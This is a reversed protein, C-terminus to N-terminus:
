SNLKRSLETKSNVDMKSYIRSVHTQITSLSVNLKQSLEKYTYGESLLIAIEKERPTLGADTGIQDRIKEPKSDAIRQEKIVITFIMGFLGILLLSPIIQNFPYDLISDFLIMLIFAPPILSLQLHKTRYLRVSATLRKNRNDRRLLLPFLIGAAALTYILLYLLSTPITSDISM